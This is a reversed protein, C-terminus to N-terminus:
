RREEPHGDATDWSTTPLVKAPLSTIGPLRAPGMVTGGGSSWSEDNGKCPSSSAGLLEAETCPAAM